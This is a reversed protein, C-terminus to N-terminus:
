DKKAEDLDIRGIRESRSTVVDVLFEPIDDENLNSVMEFHGENFVILCLPHNLIKHKEMVAMMEKQFDPTTIVNVKRGNDDTHEITM